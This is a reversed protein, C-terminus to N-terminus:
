IFRVGPYPGYLFMCDDADNCVVDEPNKMAMGSYKAPKINPTRPRLVRGFDETDMTQEEVIEEDSDAEKGGSEVGDLVVEPMEEEEQAFQLREVQRRVPQIGILPIEEMEFNIYSKEENKEKGKITEDNYWGFEYENFKVNRSFFIKKKDVDWLRYGRRNDPYGLFISKTARQGFKWTRDTKPITAYATSGFVKFYGINPKHGTWIEMPVVDGCAKTPCYNRVHNATKAAEGWFNKPLRSERLMCRVKAAITRNLRESVGNQEPTHPNTYEHKIGARELYDKFEGSNYEGGNDSRLRKIRLGTQNENRAKYEVFKSM